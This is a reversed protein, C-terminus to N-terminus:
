ANNIYKLISQAIDCSRDGLVAERSVKPRYLQHLVDLRIVGHAWVGGVQRPSSNPTASYAACRTTPLAM